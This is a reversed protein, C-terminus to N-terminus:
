SLPYYFPGRCVVKEIVIAAGRACVLSAEHYCLARNAGWFACLGLGFPRPSHAKGLGLAQAARREYRRLQVKLKSTRPPRLKSM